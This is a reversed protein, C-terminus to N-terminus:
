ISYVSLMNAMPHASDGLCDFMLKSCIFTDLQVRARADGAGWASGRRGATRRSCDGGARPASPARASQCQGGPIATTAAPRTTAKAPTRPRRMDTGFAARPVWRGCKPRQPRMERRPVRTSCPLPPFYFPFSQSMRLWVLLLTHAIHLTCHAGAAQQEPPCPLPPFSQCVAQQEPPCAHPDCSNPQCFPQGCCWHLVATRWGIGRVARGLGGFRRDVGRFRSRVRLTVNRPTTHLTAHHAHASAHV